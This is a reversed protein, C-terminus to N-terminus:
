LLCFEAFPEDFWVLGLESNGPASPVSIQSSKRKESHLRTKLQISLFQGRRMQSVYVATALRERSM